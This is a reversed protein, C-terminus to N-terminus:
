CVMLNTTATNAGVASWLMWEALGTMITVGCCKSTVNYHHGDGRAHWINRINQRQFKVWIAQTYQDSFGMSDKYM